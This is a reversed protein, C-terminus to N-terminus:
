AGRILLLVYNQPVIRATNPLQQDCVGEQRGRKLVESVPQPSTAGLFCHLFDKWTMFPKLGCPDLALSLAGPIMSRIALAKATLPLDSVVVPTVKECHMGCVFQLRASPSRLKIGTERTPM